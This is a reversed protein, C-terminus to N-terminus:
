HNRKTWLQDRRGSASSKARVRGEDSAPDYLVDWEEPEGIVGVWGIHWWGDEAPECDDVGHPFEVIRDPYRTLSQAAWAARQMAATIQETTPALTM